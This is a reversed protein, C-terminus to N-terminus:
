NQRACLKEMTLIAEFKTVTLSFVEFQVIQGIRDKKSLKALSLHRHGFAGGRLIEFRRQSFQGVDHAPHFFALQRQLLGEGGVFTTGLQQLVALCGQLAGFLLHAYKVLLVLQLIKGYCILLAQKM